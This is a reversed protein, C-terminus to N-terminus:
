QAADEISKRISLYTDFLLQQGEAYSRKTTEWTETSAEQLREIRVKTEDRTQEIRANLDAIRADIAAQQDAALKKADLRLGDVSQQWAKQRAELEAELLAKRTAVGTNAARLYDDRTTEFAAWNDDLSKQTAAVQSATWTKANAAADEIHARYADRKEHLIKLTEDATTRAEGKLRAIEKELVDVNADLEALRDQSWEIAQRAPSSNDGIVPETQSAADEAFAAPVAILAVQTFLALGVASLFKM